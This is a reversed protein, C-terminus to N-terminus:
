TTGHNMRKKARELRLRETDDNVPDKPRRKFVTSHPTSREEEPRGNTYYYLAISKRSESYPCSLPDPHGHYAHDTTNFIVVTGIEPPISVLCEKMQEDWLELNGNWNLEWNKNLYVLVNVRRDLHTIPHYNYDAHIDLKGGRVIQHLGGGNLTHDTILGKIGTIHELFSVFRNEMLENIFKRIPYPFNHLDNRALKKELINEYKWWKGDTRNPFSDSMIELLEPQIISKLVIHPFPQSGLYVERLADLRFPDSYLYESICGLFSTEGECSKGTTM